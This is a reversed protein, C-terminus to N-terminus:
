NGDGNIGCYDPKVKVSTGTCYYNGGDIYGDKNGDNFESFRGGYEVILRRYKDLSLTFTDDVRLSDELLTYPTNIAQGRITYTAKTIKAALKGNGTPKVSFNANFDCRGDGPCGQVDFDTLLGEDGTRALLIFQDDKGEGDGNRSWEAGFAARNNQARSVTVTYKDTGKVKDPIANVTARVKNVADFALMVPSLLLGVAGFLTVLVKEGFCKVIIKSVQFDEDDFAQLCDQTLAGADIVRDANASSQGVKTVAKGSKVVISLGASLSGYVTDLVSLGLAWNSLSMSLYAKEGPKLPNVQFTLTERPAIITHDHQRYIEVFSMSQVNADLLAMKSSKIDLPYRRNNTVKVIRDKNKKDYGFCYYLTKADKYTPKVSYEDSEATAQDSCKPPSAESFADSTITEVLGDTIIKTAETVLTNFIQFPSLHDVTVLLHKHDAAVQFQAKQWGDPKHSPNTLVTIKDADTVARALTFSITMPAELPGSPSIDLLPTLPEILKRTESNSPLIESKADALTAKLGAPIKKGTVSVDNGISRNTAEASPAPSDGGQAAINFVLAIALVGALALLLRPWRPKPRTTSV